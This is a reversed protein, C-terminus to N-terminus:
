HFAGSRTSPKSSLLAWGTILCIGAVCLWAFWNGFRTFLTKANSPYVTGTLVGAVNVDFNNRDKVRNLIRGRSDIFCSVGTNACRVVYRSNEVARFVNMSLFQYPAASRGFWAENTINVLFGAGKDVFRRADADFINEWCIPAGFTIGNLRFLKIKKGPLFNPTAPIGLVNWPIKEGYPLYEGFPLLRMKDYPKEPDGNRKPDILYASNKYKASKPEAPKFKHLNSSGLLIAADARAAIEKVQNM